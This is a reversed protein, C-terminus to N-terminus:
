DEKDANEREPNARNSTSTSFTSISSFWITTVHLMLILEVGTLVMASTVHPGGFICENLFVKGTMMIDQELRKLVASSNLYDVALWYDRAIDGM